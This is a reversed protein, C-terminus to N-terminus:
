HKKRFYASIALSAIVSIFVIGWFTLESSVNFPLKVNMGLLGALMTPITLTVTIVTLTRMTENLRIDMITRYSDRDNQITRLLSKCRAIVQELDISLDEIEDTDEQFWFGDKNLFMELATNTPILADLYDNLKREYEVVSVIDKSYIRPTNDTLARMQRNIQAVQGQYCQAIFDMMTLFLRRRMGQHVVATDIFPRWLKSLDDKAITVLLQSNLAFLIPTTFENANGGIDPVRMIFYVWNDTFELRPVEHPDLTDNLLNEDIGLQTLLLRDDTTPNDCRLWDISSDENVVQLKGKDNSIIREIM